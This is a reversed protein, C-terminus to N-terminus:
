TKRSLLFDPNNVRFDQIILGDLSSTTDSNSALSGAPHGAM